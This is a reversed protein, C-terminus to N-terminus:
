ALADRFAPDDFLVLVPLLAGTSGVPKLDGRIFAKSMSETGHCFATLQAETMPISVEPEADSAGAVRGDVIQLVARKTKGITFEVVADSPVVTTVARSAGAVVEVWDADLVDAASAM